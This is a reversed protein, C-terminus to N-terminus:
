SCVPLSRAAPRSGRRARRLRSRVRRTGAWVMARWMPRRGTVFECHLHLAFVNQPLCTNLRDPLTLEPSGRPNRVSRSEPSIQGSVGYRELIAEGTRVQYSASVPQGRGVQPTGSTPRRRQGAHDPREVTLAHDPTTDSRRSYKIKRRRSFRSTNSAREDADM